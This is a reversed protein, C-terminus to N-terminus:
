KVLKDSKYLLDIVGAGLPKKVGAVLHALACSARQWLRGQLIVTRPGAARNSCFTGCTVTGTGMLLVWESLSAGLFTSNM